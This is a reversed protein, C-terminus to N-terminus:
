VQIRLSAAWGFFYVDGNDAVVFTTYDGASLHRAKADKLGEVERPLSVWEVACGQGLCGYRSWGWSFVRGDLALAACHFAGAYISLPKVDQAHFHQVLAPIVLNRKDGHGLKGGQGCGVSYVSRCISM